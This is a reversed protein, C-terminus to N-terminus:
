ANSVGRLLLSALSFQSFVEIFCIGKWKVVSSLMHKEINIYTVKLVM